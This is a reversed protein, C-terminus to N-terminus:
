VIIVILLSNLCIGVRIKQAGIYKAIADRGPRQLLSGSACRAPCKPLDSFAERQPLSGPWLSLTNFAEELTGM